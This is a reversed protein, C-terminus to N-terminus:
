YPMGLMLRRWREVKEVEGERGMRRLSSSVNNLMRLATTLPCAAYEKPSFWVANTKGFREALEGPGLEVGGYFPDFVRNELVALYHGPTNLGEVELGARRGVFIYALSLTLPLGERTVVLRSLLSNELKYYDLCNGRLGARGALMERLVRLGDVPRGNAEELNKSVWEGWEDLIAIGKERVFGHDWTESVTWCFSELQEWSGLATEGPREIPDDRALWYFLVDEARSRAPEKAHKAVWRLEEEPRNRGERLTELLFNLSPGEPESLLSALASARTM